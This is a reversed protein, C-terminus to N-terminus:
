CDSLCECFFSNAAKEKEGTTSDSVHSELVGRVKAAEGERASGRPAVILTRLTKVFGLAGAFTSRAMADRAFKVFGKVHWEFLQPLNASVALGDVRGGSRPMAELAADTRTPTM